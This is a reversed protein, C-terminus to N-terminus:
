NQAHKEERQVNGNSENTGRVWEVVDGEKLALWVGASGPVAEGIEGNENLYHQDEIFLDRPEPYTSVFSGSGFWGGVWQGDGIRVRIWCGGRDPAVKDWATPTPEYNSRLRPVRIWSLFKPMTRKPRRWLSTGHLAYAVIAPVVVGLVLVLLALTRPEKVVDNANGSLPLPWDGLALLYVANLMMGVVIAHLVRTGVSRDRAGLGRLSGRVAAYVVGPLVFVLLAILQLTTAPISM